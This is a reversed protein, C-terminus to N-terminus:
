LYRRIAVQYPVHKAILRACVVSPPDQSGVKITFAAPMGAIAGQAPWFDTLRSCAASATAEGVVVQHTTVVTPAAELIGATCDHLVTITWKGAHELLLCATATRTGCVSETIHLPILQDNQQAVASFM